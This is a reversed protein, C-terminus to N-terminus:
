PNNKTQEAYVSIGLTGIEGQYTNNAEIPFAWSITVTDSASPALTFFSGADGTTIITGGSTELTFEIPHDGGTLLYGVKALDNFRYRLELSGTNTVVIDAQGSDGPAINAYDFYLNGDAKDLGIELTGATFSNGTNEATDTFLALTAGGVLLAGILILIFAALVSRNLKKM